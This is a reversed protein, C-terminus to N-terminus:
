HLFLLFFLMIFFYFSKYFKTHYEQISVGMFRGLIYRWHVYLGYYLTNSLVIWKRKWFRTKKVDKLTKETIFLNCIWKKAVLNVVKQINFIIFFVKKGLFSTYLFGRSKKWVTSFVIPFFMYKQGWFSYFVFCFHLCFYWVDKWLVCLVVWCVCFLLLFVLFVSRSNRRSILSNNYTDMLIAM